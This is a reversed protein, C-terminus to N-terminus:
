AERTFLLGPSSQLRHTSKVPGSDGSGWSGRTPNVGIRSSLTRVPLLTTATSEGSTRSELQGLRGDEIKGPISSLQRSPEWSTAPVLGEGDARTSLSNAACDTSRTSKVRPHEGATGSELVERRRVTEVTSPESAEGPLVADEM